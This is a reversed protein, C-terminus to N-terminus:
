NTDRYYSDILMLAASNRNPAHSLVGGSGIILDLKFMDVLSNNEQKFLDGIGRQRKGGKLGVALRKHHEFALRLAERSVAQELILDEMTQPISTPRIM